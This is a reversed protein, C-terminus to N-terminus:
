DWRRLMGGAQVRAVRGALARRARGADRALALLGGVQGPQRLVSGLVRALGIVGAQDLAALAAPPLDRWAPDCVARLVAFPVGAQAAGQAVAGSELDVAEARTFCWLRAKAAASTVASSEALLLDASFGGLAASLAADAHFIGTNSVVSRPVVLAGPRISPSLGGALGFSVLATAGAALSLAVARTAGEAGGGGVFIHGEVLRAEARLGVIFALM